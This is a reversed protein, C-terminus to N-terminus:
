KPTYVEDGNWDYGAFKWGAKISLKAAEGARSEDGFIEAAIEYASMESPMTLNERMKKALEVMSRKIM